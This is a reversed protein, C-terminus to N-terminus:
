IVRKYNSVVCAYVNEECMKEPIDYPNQIEYSKFDMKKTVQVLKFIFM